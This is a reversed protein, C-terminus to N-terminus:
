EKTTGGLNSVMMSSTSTCMPSVDRRATTTSPFGSGSIRHYLTFNDYDALSHKRKYKNKKFPIAACCGSIPLIILTIQFWILLQNTQRLIVHKERLAAVECKHVVVWFIGKNDEVGAGFVGTHVGASCLVQGAGVGAFSFECNM